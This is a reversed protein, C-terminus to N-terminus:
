CRALGSRSMTPSRAATTGIPNGETLQRQFIRGEPIVQFRVFRWDNPLTCARILPLLACGAGVAYGRNLAFRRQCHRRILAM